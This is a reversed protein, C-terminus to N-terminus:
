IFTYSTLAFTARTHLISRVQGSIGIDVEKLAHYAKMTHLPLIRKRNFFYKYTPKINPGHAKSFLWTQFYREGKIDVNNMSDCM